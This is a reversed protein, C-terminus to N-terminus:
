SRPFNSSRGSGFGSPKSSKQRQRRVEKALEDPRISRFFTRLWTPIRVTYSLRVTPNVAPDPIRVPRPWSLSSIFFVYGIDFNDPPLRTGSVLPSGHRPSRDPECAVNAHAQELPIHELVPLSGAWVLRRQSGPLHQKQQGASFPTPLKKAPWCAM